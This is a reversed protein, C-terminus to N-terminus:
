QIKWITEKKVTNKPLCNINLSLSILPKIIIEFFINLTRHIVEDVIKAVVGLAKMAHKSLLFYFEDNKKEFFSFSRAADASVKFFETFASM